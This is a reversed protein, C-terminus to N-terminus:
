SLLCGLSFSSFSLDGCTRQYGRTYLGDGVLGNLYKTALVFPDLQDSSTPVHRRKARCRKTSSSQDSNRIAVVIVIVTIGSIASM